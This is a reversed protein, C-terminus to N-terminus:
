RRVLNASQIGKTAHRTDIVLKAKEVILPYNCSFHDTAIMFCGFDPTENM